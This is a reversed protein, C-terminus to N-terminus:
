DGREAPRPAGRRMVQWLLAILLVVPALVDIAAVLSEGM